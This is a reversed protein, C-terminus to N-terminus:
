RLPVTTSRVRQQIDKILLSVWAEETDALSRLRAAEAEFYTMEPKEDVLGAGAAWTALRASHYAYCEKIGASGRQKYQYHLALDYKEILDAIVTERQQGLAWRLHSSPDRNDRAPNVWQAWSSLHVSEAAFWLSILNNAGALAFEFLKGIREELADRLNDRKQKRAWLYHNELTLSNKAPNGFDLGFVNLGAAALAYFQNRRRGFPLGPDKPDFWWDLTPYKGLIRAFPTTARLTAAEIQELKERLPAPMNARGESQLVEGLYSINDIQLGYKEMLDWLVLRDHQVGAAWTLHCYPTPDNRAAIDYGGFRALDISLATFLYALKTHSKQALSTIERMKVSTLLNGDVTVHRFKPKAGKMSSTIFQLPRHSSLWEARKAIPTTGLDASFNGKCVQSGNGFRYEKSDHSHGSFVADLGGAGTQLWKIKSIPIRSDWEAVCGDMGLLKHSSESDKLYMCALDGSAHMGQNWSAQSKDMSGPARERLLPAHTFLLALGKAARAEQVAQNILEYHSLVIGRNHSQDDLFHKEAESLSWPEADGDFLRRIADFTEGLGFDPIGVDEGTNVCVLRHTGIRVIYDTDYSIETLYQAYPLSQFDPSGYIYCKAQECKGTDFGKGTRRRKLRDGLSDGPKAKWFEYERAEQETLGWADPRRVQALSAGWFVAEMSLPYEMLLYEHNGLVCFIPCRLVESRGDRGTIIDVFKRVNSTTQAPLGLWGGREGREGAEYDQFFSAGDVKTLLGDHYFDVLDGTMVLFDIKERNAFQVLARLNDNFNNFRLRLQRAEDRLLTEGLVEPILDNRGAVHLDTVHLFSLRGKSHLDGVHICHPVVVPTQERFWWRIDFLRPIGQAKLRVIDNSDLGLLVRAEWRFGAFYQHERATRPPKRGDSKSYPLVQVVERPKLSMITVGRDALTVTIIPPVTLSPAQLMRFLESPTPPTESTGAFTIEFAKLTEPSIILPQGLNPRVLLIPALDEYKPLKVSDLETLQHRISEDFLFQGSLVTPTKLEEISFRTTVVGDERYFHLLGGELAWRVENLNSYGDITGDRRLHISPALVTGDARSFRWYRSTLYMRTFLM